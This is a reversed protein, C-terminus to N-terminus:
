IKKRELFKINTICSFGEAMVIKREEKRRGRWFYNFNTYIKGTYAKISIYKDM